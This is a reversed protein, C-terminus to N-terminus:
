IIKLIKSQRARLEVKFNCDVQRYTREWLDYVSYQKTKDLGVRELDITKVVSDEVYFNFIAVYFTKNLSDELVFTDCARNGTNGEVPKFSVGKRALDNIEENTLLKKLRVVAQERRIDDSNLLVTGAIASSNLRSQAEDETSSDQNYSKFLITHDPDNYRYLSNNMWWSYTLSNLMYETDNIKGFIDCSVRRAHAYQYPFSPAISLSIFIDRGIVKPDLINKIHNMGYNYAQIGTYINKNYHEGEMAGHVMFDMKIYDFGLDIFYKLINEVRKLNGPHTPDIPLGTALRPLHNGDRDKLLIDEYKYKNDTEEILQDYEKGWYTFPTFYTGAKQGNAHVHKVAESLQDKTLNNWGADFNIYVTEDSSFSKPQLEEKMFDSTNTFLDFSIDKSVAGWSNWGFPVGHNWPLAPVLKSNAVGFQELGDRYDNFFGIFVKSSELSMGRISGHAISDRTTDNAVGNFISLESIQGKEDGTVKIGTKWTDHTLSGLIMGIRSVNDYVATVEYSENVNKLENAEYRVWKDNDFPVFLVRKDGKENDSMWATSQVRDLVVPSIFNSSIQSSSEIVSQVIVFPKDEYIYLNQLITPVRYSSNEFTLKLGNGFEDNLVETKNELLIHKEYDNSKLVVGNDLRALSYVGLLTKKDKWLYDILGTKMNYIIKIIENSIIYNYDSKSITIKYNNM